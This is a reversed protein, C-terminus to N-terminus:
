DTMQILRSSDNEQTGIVLEEYNQDENLNSNATM